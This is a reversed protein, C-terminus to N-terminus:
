DIVTGSVPVHEEYRNRLGVQANAVPQKERVRRGTTAPAKVSTTTGHSATNGHATLKKM